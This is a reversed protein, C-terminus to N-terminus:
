MAGQVLQILADRYAVYLLCLIGVAVILGAAVWLEFIHTINEPQSNPDVGLQRLRDQCQLQVFRWEAAHKAQKDIEWCAIRYQYKLWVVGFFDMWRPRPNLRQEPTIYDSTM